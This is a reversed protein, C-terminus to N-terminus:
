NNQLADNKQFGRTSGYVTDSDIGLGGQSTFRMLEEMADQNKIKKAHKNTAAIVKVSSFILLNFSTHSDDYM